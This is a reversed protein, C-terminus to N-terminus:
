FRHSAIFKRWQKIVQCQLSLYKDQSHKPFSLVLNTIIKKEVRGTAKAKQLKPRRLTRIRFRPILVQKHDCIRSAPSTHEHINQKPLSVLRSPPCSLNPTQTLIHQSKQFTSDGLQLILSFESFYKNFQM